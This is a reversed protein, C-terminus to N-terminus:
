RYRFFPHSFEMVWSFLSLQFSLLVFFINTARVRVYSGAGNKFVRCVRARKERRSTVIALCRSGASRRTWWEEQERGSSEIRPAPWFSRLEPSSFTCLNPCWQLLPMALFSLFSSFALYFLFFFLLALSLYVLCQLTLLQPRIRFLNKLEQVTSSLLSTKRVDRRVSICGEM